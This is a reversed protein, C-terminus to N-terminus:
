ERLDIKLVRDTHPSHSTCFMECKTSHLKESDGDGWVFWVEM